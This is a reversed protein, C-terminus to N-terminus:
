NMVCTKRASYKQLFHAIPRVSVLDNDDMFNLFLISFRNIANTTSICIHRNVVSSRTGGGLGIVGVNNTAASASPDRM